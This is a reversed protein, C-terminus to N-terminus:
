VVHMVVWIVNIKMVTLATAVEFRVYNKNKMMVTVTMMIMIMWTFVAWFYTGDSCKSSAFHVTNYSVHMVLEFVDSKPVASIKNDVFM